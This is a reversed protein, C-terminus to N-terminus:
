ILLRNLTERVLVATEEVGKIAGRIRCRQFQSLDVFLFQGADNRYSGRQRYIGTYLCRVGQEIVAKLLYQGIKCAQDLWLGLDVVKEGVEAGLKLM